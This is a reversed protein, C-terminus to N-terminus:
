GGSEPYRLDAWVVCQSLDNLYAGCQGDSYVKVIHLGRGRKKTASPPPGPRARPRSNLADPSSRHSGPDTVEVRVFGRGRLLKIMVWDRGEGPEVHQVANTVLEVTVLLVDPLLVDDHGLWTTVIQRAMQPTHDNRSLHATSIPTM